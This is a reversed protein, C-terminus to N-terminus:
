KGAVICKVAPQCRPMRFTRNQRNTKAGLPWCNHQCKTSLYLMTICIIADRGGVSGNEYIWANEGCFEIKRVISPRANSLAFNACSRQNCVNLLFFLQRFVMAIKGESPCLCCRFVFLRLCFHLLSYPGPASPLSCVAAFRLVSVSVRWVTDFECEDKCSRGGGRQCGEGKNAILYKNRRINATDSDTHFRACIQVHKANTNWANNLQFNICM